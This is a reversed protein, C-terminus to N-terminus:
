YVKLREFQAQRETLTVPEIIDKLQSEANILWQEMKESAEAYVSWLMITTELQAKMEIMESVVNEWEKRLRQVAETMVEKGQLSTGTLVSTLNDMLQQLRQNGDDRNALLEQM